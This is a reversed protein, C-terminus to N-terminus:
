YCYSFRCFGVKIEEANIAPEDLGSLERDMEGFWTMLDSHTDTFHAALPVAQELVSMRDASVKSVIESAQKLSHLKEQIM